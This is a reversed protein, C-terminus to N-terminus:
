KILILKKTSTFQGSSLRYFYVGSAFEDANFTTNYTGANFYGSILTKMLKGNVDFISIEASGSFPIQWKLITTSNFPNPYNQELSYENVTEGNNLIITAPTLPYNNDSTTFASFSNLGYVKIYKQSTNLEYQNDGTGPTLYTNWDNGAGSNSKSFRINSDNIIMFRQSSLYNYTIDYKYGAGGSQTIIFYGKMYKSSPYGSVGPPNVGPYFKINLGSIGGLLIFNINLFKRGYYLVENSGSVPSFAITNPVSVPNFEFAGIDPSGQQINVPRSIGNIDSNVGTIQIGNGNLIWSDSNTSDPKLNIGSTFGPNGSLSSSDLKSINKYNLFNYKTSLWSAVSSTDSNYLCNFDSIINATDGYFLPYNSTAVTRNIYIANNKMDFSANQVKQIGVSRTASGSTASGGIYISNYFINFKNTPYGTYIYLGHFSKPHDQNDNGLSIMNNFVDSNTTANSGSLYVGYINGYSSTGGTGTLYILNVIRNNKISHSYGGTAYIGYLNGSSSSNFSYINGINNKNCILPTSTSYIGYFSGKGLCRIGQLTDTLSGVINGYDTGVTVTGSNIHIGRFASNTTDILSINKIVNSDIISANGSNVGIYIGYLTSNGSYIMKDGSANRTIGGFYNGKILHGTSTTSAIRIAAPSGATITPRTCYFHNNSNIWNNGVATSLLYIGFGSFNFIENETIVNNNNDKGSTGGSFIITGPGAATVDSRDRLKCYSISNNTNGTINNSTSFGILNASNAQNEVQLYRLTNYSAGNIFRIAESIKAVTRTNRIIWQINTMNGVGGPRGDFIIYEASDLVILPNSTGPDGQTIRGTVGAAPRITITNSLSAGAKKNIRIPFTEASGNYDNHLEIIYAGTITAPISNYADSIKTYTQSAGVPIVTQTNGTEMLAILGLIFIFLYFNKM